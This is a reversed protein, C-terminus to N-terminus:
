AHNRPTIAAASIEAGTSAQEIRMGVTPQRAFHHAFITRVPTRITRSLRRPHSAPLLIDSRVVRRCELLHFCVGDLCDRFGAIRFGMFQCFGAPQEGM